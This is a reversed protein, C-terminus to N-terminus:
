RKATGALADAAARRLVAKLDLKGTLTREVMAAAVIPAAIKVAKAAIKKLDIKV